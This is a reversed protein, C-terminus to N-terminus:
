PKWWKMLASVCNPCIDCFKKGDLSGIWQPGNVEAATMRGWTYSNEPNRIEQRNKCRDCTMVDFTTKAM